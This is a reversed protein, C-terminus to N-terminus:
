EDEPIERTTNVPSLIFRRTPQGPQGKPSPQWKGRGAAVLLQLTQEAKGPAKLWRCGIQVERVTVPTAKRQIWEVLRRQDRETETESLIAYVRSAENKFWETMRIAEVMTERDIESQSILLPDNTVRRVCHIILAIRGPTEGLKSWAAGLEETLEAQENGHRDYFERFVAKAEPSLEVTEPDLQGEADHKLSLRYLAILVERYQAEIQPDIEADSWRKARPPPFSLLFRAAMGSDRHEQGLTRKLVGPQIGGTISMAAQSVSITKPTGHKRDVTVPSASHMALWHAADGGGKNSSYKDFSGFWGSLEDRALLLGRPNLALLLLVAEITTDEIYYREAQPEGPLRPPEEETQASREWEALKKKHFASQVQHDSLETAHRRLSDRQREYVPKM